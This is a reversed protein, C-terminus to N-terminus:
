VEDKLENSIKSYYESLTTTGNKVLINGNDQLTKFNNNKAKTLIDASSRNKSIQKAIENNIELIESVIKRQNYGTFNCKECGIETYSNTTSDFTKCHDCLIRLLRQSIVMKLTTAILYPEAKLDLLRSITEVSNNTHLTAIVLHGTLAARLAIHLSLSDRIEGIMLIDPDQRLINKLVLHYDLDIDPNINIQIIGDLKYEVPDEITIIKKEKSNIHNLMSYLSTTKGSGTPGTVLILGQNLTLTKKIISLNNQEFGIYDLEKKINKNDLIRIVISEGHITPITSVRFDYNNKDIEKTFRGNLPLRKQSIDLNSYFKIISSLPPYLDISFRFYQNMIGDARLRIIVSKELCEIHIDSVSNQIAFTFIVDTLNTISSNSNKINSEFNLFSITKKSLYFLEIKFDLNQLEFEFDKKSVGILKIPFNFITNFYQIDNNLDTTAFMIFLESKYIPLINYKLLVNKDINEILSYDINYDELSNIM